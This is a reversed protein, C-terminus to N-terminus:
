AAVEVEVPQLAPFLTACPPTLHLHLAERLNTVAEFETEGQSAVDIELCQAVYLNSEQWIHATFTQTM